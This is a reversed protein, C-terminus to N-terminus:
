CSEGGQVCVEFPNPLTGTSFGLALWFLPLGIILSAYGLVEFKRGEGVFGQKKKLEDTEKQLEMVKQFKEWRADRKEEDVAYYIKKPAKEGPAVATSKPSPKEWATEGTDLNYFYKRGQDDEAVDWREVAPPETQMRLAVRRRPGSCVQRKTAM